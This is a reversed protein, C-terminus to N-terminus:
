PKNYVRQPQARPPGRRQGPIQVQPIKETEQNGQYPNRMRLVKSGPKQAAVPRPVEQDEYVEQIETNPKQRRSPDPPKSLGFESGDKLM